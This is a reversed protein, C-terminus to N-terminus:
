DGHRDDSGSIIPRLLQDLQVRIVTGPSLWGIGSLRVKAFLPLVTGDPLSVRAVQSRGRPQFVKRFEEPLQEAVPLVESVRGSTQVFGDSIRVQDGAAVSYLTGTELYALVFRQPRYLLMLPQGVTVVDGPRATTLGVIGNAPAVVRGNGYADSLQALAQAADTLAANVAALSAEASFAEAQLSAVRESATFRESLAQSWTALSVNGGNRVDRIRKLARDAEAARDRAIPLVATAIGVRDQIDARKTLLEANRATLTAIEVSLDISSVRALEDGEKVEAGPRVNIAEVQAAFPVGVSTYEAVVLGDAQLRLLPGILLDTLWLFFVFLLTIYVYRGFRTRRDHIEDVLRDVRAKQHLRRIL